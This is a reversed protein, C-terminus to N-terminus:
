LPRCAARTGSGPLPELYASLAVDEEDAVRRPAWNAAPTFRVLRDFYRDWLREAAEPDGAELAQLWGSVSTESNM